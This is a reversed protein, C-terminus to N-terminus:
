LGGSRSPQTPSIKIVMLVILGGMLAILGFAVRLGAAQAIFGVFPPVILFGLYGITSIAAIASAGSMTESKGAMSFVLPVICSVGAGTLVFGIIAAATYPVLVALLMGTFILWGSYNLISKIGIRNVLPDGAFRSITMAVMYFVFGITASQKSVHLAKEFYIGGWDYMTNECAMCAFCILSFKILFKDPLTFVPRKQVPAPKDYIAGSYFIATTILMLVSVGPLHWNASVNFRIMLYGVAAGAFGALSWIGHFFTMISRSYLKQVSVGQANISINFLNRSAGFFFLILVLQWTYNVFGLLGLMLTFTTAGVLMISRSSFRSLLHGTLPMTMILGAPMAFLVGGLQAENLHLHQQLSPIRSAWAAYGFGSLFYFVMGSIRARRPSKYRIITDLSMAAFIPNLHAPILIHLHASLSKEAKADTQLHFINM